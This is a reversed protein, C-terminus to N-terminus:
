RGNPFFRTPPEGIVARWTERRVAGDVFTRNATRDGDRWEMEFVGDWAPGGFRPSLQDDIFSYIDSNGPRRDFFRMAYVRHLDVSSEAVRWGASHNGTVIIVGWNRSGTSDDFGVWCLLHYARVIGGGRHGDNGVYAYAEEDTYWALLRLDENYAQRQPYLSFTRSFANWLPLGKDMREREESTAWSWGNRWRVNGLAERSVASDYWDPLTDLSDRGEVKTVESRSDVASRGACCGAYGLLFVIIALWEFLRM